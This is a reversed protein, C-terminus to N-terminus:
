SIAIQNIPKKRLSLSILSREIGISWLLISSDLYIYLNLVQFFFFFDTLTHKYFFFFFSFSFFFVHIRIKERSYDEDEPILDKDEFNEDGFSAPTSM